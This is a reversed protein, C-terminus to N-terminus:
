KGGARPMETVNLPLQPQKVEEEFAVLEGAEQGIHAHTEYGKYAALKAVVNIELTAYDREENPHVKVQLTITRATKWPTNVDAINELVEKMKAEFLESAAGSGLTALAVRKIETKM